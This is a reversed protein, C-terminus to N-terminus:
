SGFHKRVVYTKPSSKRNLWQCRMSTWGRPDLCSTWSEVTEDEEAGGEHGVYTTILMSGGPSLLTSSLRLADLTTKSSTRLSSLDRKKGPLHGLNFVILQVTDVDIGDVRSMEVHSRQHLNVRIWQEEVLQSRLLENTSAIAEEQVDFAHVIGMRRFTPTPSLVLRALELTDRGRGCTADIVLDGPRTLCAM